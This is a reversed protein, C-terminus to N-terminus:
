IPPDVPRPEKPLAFVPDKPPFLPEKADTPFGVLEVSALKAPRRLLLSILVSVFLSVLKVFLSSFSSTKCRTRTLLLFYFKDQYIYFNKHNKEYSIM